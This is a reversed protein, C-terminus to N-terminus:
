FNQTLTPNNETARLPFPLIWLKSDPKISYTGLEGVNRTITKKYKDETNWRKRDFFNEYTGINEIFKAKQLLAMADEETSATFDKYHETDIRYKRIKNVLDLGEGIQGNRIYCEAALYYIREVTLGYANVYTDYCNYELVGDIGSDYYGYDANWAEDGKVVKGNAYAYNKVLDGDEFYQNTELSIVEWNPIDTKISLPSVYLINNESTAPLTWKHTNVISTRDEITSNYKLAAQAYTLADTYNKMQFLVTARVANGWAKSGRIVNPAKDPLAAIYEDSCDALINKYVEAVTLKQKVNDLQTDTVYAIGGDNEATASNYQKAYINVLLFHFYARMVHAEAAIEAKEAADGEVADIKSLIVNMYNIYSYGTTYKSDKTALLARDVSEDYAMYAYKLTNKTKLALEVNEYQGYCENCIVGLDICPKGDFEPKNLLLELDALTGLTSKGKPVIDLDCSYLSLGMLAVLAYIYIKKM